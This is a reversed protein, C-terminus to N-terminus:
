HYKMLKNFHIYENFNQLGQLIAASLSTPEGGFAHFDVFHINPTRKKSMILAQRNYFEDLEEPTPRGVRIIVISLPLDHARQLEEVTDSVDQIKADTLIGVVLYKPRKWKKKDDHSSSTSSDDAKEKKRKIKKNRKHYDEAIYRAEAVVRHLDIWNASKPHKELIRQYGHLVTEVDRAGKQIVFPNGSHISKTGFGYYPVCREMSLPLLAQTVHNIALPYNNSGATLLPDVLSHLPSSFDTVLYPVFQYGLQVAELIGLHPIIFMQIGLLGSNKYKKKEAKKPNIIPFSPSTQSKIDQVSTNVTGIHVVKKEDNGNFVDFNLLCRDDGSNVVSVPLIFPAWSPSDDHHQKTTHIVLPADMTQRSVQVFADPKPAEQLSM